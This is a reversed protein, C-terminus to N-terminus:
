YINHNLLSSVHLGYFQGGLFFDVSRFNRKAIDRFVLRGRSLPRGLFYDEVRSLENLWKVADQREQNFLRLLLFPLGRLKVNESPIILSSLEYKKEIVYLVLVRTFSIFILFLLLCRTLFLSLSLAPHNDDNTDTM